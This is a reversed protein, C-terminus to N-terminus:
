FNLKVTERRQSIRLNGYNPVNGVRMPKSLVSFITTSNKVIFNNFSVDQHQCKASVEIKM